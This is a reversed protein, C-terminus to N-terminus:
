CATACSATSSRRCRTRRPQGVCSTCTSPAARPTQLVRSPVRGEEDRRGHLRPRHTKALGDKEYGRGAHSRGETAAHHGGPRDQQGRAARCCGEGQRGKQGQARQQPPRRRPAKGKAPAGKAVQAGRTAAHAGGKAKREAKPKAPQDAKPEPTGVPAAAKPAV